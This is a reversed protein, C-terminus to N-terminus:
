LSLSLVYLEGSDIMDCIFLLHGHRCICLFIGAIAFLDFMKKKADPAAAKWRNVCVDACNKLDDLENVNLWAIDDVM